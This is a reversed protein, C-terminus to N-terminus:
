GNPSTEPLPSRVAQIAVSRTPKDLRLWRALLPRPLDAALLQAPKGFFDLVGEAALYGSRVAGEMTAPWGTATWDGALFLNRVATRQGPRLRESGPLPSFVAHQETIVRAQLLKAEGAAPWIASLERQVQALVADRGQSELDRSASIVVQYYHGNLPQSGHNFVWQSVRGPLVANPLNTIPRDFWLHVATIPASELRDIELLQPLATRLPDSLIESVRRWPAAVILADFVLREGDAMILENVRNVDGILQKVGCERRVTVGHGALWQELRDGYFEGLPVQPTQMEYAQRAGLFADVFVKRVPPVAARDLTESLASVIVPTWFLEIASHTQGHERLWQGITPANQDDSVPTRALQRLARVIGLRERWTLYRLRLLSPLLHLPAPLWRSAAIDCRRGDPAFFHLTRQRRLLDILGTRRCFDELNTCCGLSVHQCHDVLAGSAPDRFSTARGGLQRRAELLEVHFGRGSLGVAAALGALGGGVIAVRPAQPNAAASM